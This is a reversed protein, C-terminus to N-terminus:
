AKPDDGDPEIIEVSAVLDLWPDFEPPKAGTKRLADWALWYIHEVHLDEFVKAVGVKYHREFAVQTVPRVPVTVCTTDQYEVKLDLQIM